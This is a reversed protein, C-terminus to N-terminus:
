SSGGPTWAPKIDATSVEPPLVIQAKGDQWQGILFDGTPSGDDNWSLPGLITEVENERLWDAMAEQDEIDGVAEVAAQLVQGAAYADAADEPVEATGYMEEYKAVFEANGPTDADPSHSVAYFVGETNEAGIGDVYQGGFSPANTEYFMEPTFDAKLM